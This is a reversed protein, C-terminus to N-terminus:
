VSHRSVPYKTDLPDEATRAWPLLDDSCGRPFGNYGIGVIRMDSNVICAGVQTSPDKSRMASLFAVSMFYDDWSLVGHARKLTPSTAATLSVVANGSSSESTVTTSDTQTDGSLEETEPIPPLSVPARSLLTQISRRFADELKSPVAQHECLEHFQVSGFPCVLLSHGKSEAITITLDLGVIRVLQLGLRTDQMFGEVDSHGHLAPSAIPLHPNSPQSHAHADDLREVPWWLGNKALYWTTIMVFIYASIYIIQTWSNEFSKEIKKSKKSPIQSQNPNPNPNPNWIPIPIIKLIGWILPVKYFVVLDEMNDRPFLPTPSSFRM